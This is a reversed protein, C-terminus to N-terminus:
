TYPHGNRGLFEKIRLTEASHTSGVLVVDGLGQEILSVRRLIFARMLIESLESDTQVISRLGERDLEIVEGAERVRARALSPRGSLTQLEGTFKGAGHTVVVTTHEGDGQLIEVEGAIVVFFHSTREGRDVLIEGRDVARRRGHAGIRAIQESTLTPFMVDRRERLLADAGSISAM